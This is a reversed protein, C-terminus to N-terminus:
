RHWDDDDAAAKGAAASRVRKSGGADPDHEEFGVTNPQAACAATWPDELTFRRRRETLEIGPM